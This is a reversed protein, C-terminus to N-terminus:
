SIKEIIIGEAVKERGEFLDFKAGAKLLHYPAFESLYTVSSISQVDEIKENFIISSWLPVNSHNEAWIPKSYQGEFVIIPTYALQKNREGNIVPPIFKKEVVWTIKARATKM